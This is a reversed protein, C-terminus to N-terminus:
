FALCHNVSQRRPARVAWPPMGFDSNRPREKALATSKCDFRNQEHTSIKWATALTKYTEARSGIHCTPLNTSYRHVVKIDVSTPM